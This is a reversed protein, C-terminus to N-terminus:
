NVHFTRRSVWTHFFNRIFVLFSFHHYHIVNGSCADDNAKDEMCQNRWVLLICIWNSSSITYLYNWYHIAVNGTVWHCWVVEIFLYPRHWFLIWSLRIVFFSTTLPVGGSAIIEFCLRLFLFPFKTARNRVYSCFFTTEFILFWSMHHLALLTFSPWHSTSDYM